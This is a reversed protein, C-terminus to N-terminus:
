NFSTIQIRKKSSIPTNLNKSSLAYAQVKNKDSKNDNYNFIKIQNTYIKGIKKETFYNILESGKNKDIFLKSSYSHGIKRLNPINKYLNKQSLIDKKKYNENTETNYRQLKNYSINNNNKKKTLSENTFTLNINSNNGNYENNKIKSYFINSYTGNINVNVNDNNIKNKKVEKDFLCNFYTNYFINQISKNTNNLNLNNQPNLSDNNLKNINNRSKDKFSQSYLLNGESNLYSKKKIHLVKKRFRQFNDKFMNQNIDNLQYEEENENGNKYKKYDNDETYLYNNPCNKNVINLNNYNKKGNFLNKVPFSSETLSQQLSRARRENMKERRDYSNCNSKLDILKKCKSDKNFKKITYSGIEKKPKNYIFSLQSKKSYSGIKSKPSCLISKEYLTIKNLTKENEKKQENIKRLREIISLNNKEKEKSNNYTYNKENNKKKFIELEKQHIRIIEKKDSKTRLNNYNNRREEDNEKEKVITETDKEIKEKNFIKYRNSKNKNNNNNIDHHGKWLSLESLKQKIKENIRIKDEINREKKSNSNISYIFNNNSNYEKKEIRPSILINEERKKNVNTDNYGYIKRIPNKNNIENKNGKEIQSYNQQKKENQGKIFYIGNNNSNSKNYAFCYSKNKVHSPIIKGKKEEKEKKRNILAKNINNVNKFKNNYNYNSNVYINENEEKSNNKMNLSENDVDKSSYFTSDKISIKRNYFPFYDKEKEVVWPHMFLENIKIRKKPDITLLKDILDICEESIKKDITYNNSKINRFIEKMASKDDKLFYHARFPSYGHLMEYLLVGLSWIDIGMDYFEDNIMEPAMYEYTGCFTIREGKSVNVCWGFDCLKISGNKDILINEPKIDRHAYGNKHLFHIASAVQIFYHFAENEDMGRKQQILKYLTGKQAFEMALYYNYRDESFSFLKIIHPHTIRIHIDIERKIVSADLGVAKMKEKSVNKIAYEKGDKKNKALYLKGYGGKGIIIRQNNFDRLYEFNEISYNQSILPRHDLFEGEEIFPSILDSESSYQKFLLNLKTINQKQKM